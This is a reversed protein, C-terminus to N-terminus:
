DVNATSVMEGKKCVVKGFM